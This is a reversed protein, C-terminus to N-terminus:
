KKWLKRINPQRLVSLPLLFDEAITVAETEFITAIESPIPEVDVDM